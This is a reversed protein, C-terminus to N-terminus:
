ALEAMQRRRGGFMRARRTCLGAALGLTLNMTLMGVIGVIAGTVLDRGRLSAALSSHFLGTFALVGALVSAPIAELIRLAAPGLFLGLILLAVGIVLNMRFSRAGARFHATLGGSGHCMPMAGIAGAVINAIASSAAFRQPAARGAAEPYYRQELEAVAVVANGLTLPIQPVVLLVLASLVTAADIETSTLSPSWLSVELHPLGSGTATAAAGVVFVPLALPLPHPRRAGMVLVLAVGAAVLLSAASGAIDIASRLLILGVGLQLGRVLPLEFLRELRPVLGTVAVLALVTGLVIGTAAITEAPLDRAIAVAAAAKIPQVPVPLRFYLGSAIYVLGFGVLVTAADLGNVLTIAAVLPVLVGLDAVSASGDAAWQRLSEM